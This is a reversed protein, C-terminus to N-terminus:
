NTIDTKFTLLDDKTPMNSMMLFFNAMDEDRDGMGGGQTGKGHQGQPDGGKRGSWPDLGKESGWAGKGQDGGKGKEGKDGGKRGSWPNLGNDPGWAGGDQEESKGKEGGKGKCGKEGSEEKVGEGSIIERFSPLDPLLAEEPTPIGVRQVKAAQQVVAPSGSGVMPSKSRVRATPTSVVEMGNAPQCQECGFGDCSPVCAM